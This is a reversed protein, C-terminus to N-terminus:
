GGELGTSSSTCAPSAETRQRNAPRGDARTSSAREIETIRRATYEEDATSAMTANNWNEDVPGKAGRDLNYPFLGRPVPRELNGAFCRAQRHSVLAACDVDVLPARDTADEYQRFVVRWGGRRTREQHPRKPPPSICHPESTRGGHSDSSKSATNSGPPACEPRARESIPLEVTLHGSARHANKVIPDSARPTHTQTSHPPPSPSPHAHEYHTLFHKLPPSHIAEAQPAGKYANRSRRHGATAQPVIAEHIAHM